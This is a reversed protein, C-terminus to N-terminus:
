YNLNTALLREVSEVTEGKQLAYGAVQDRSIRGVNFYQAQPHAFYYGSVSAAPYMAFNETLHMGSREAGLLDFIVRKGSHDPCAPYGPAPRIGRYGQRLVEETTLNEEAAYGWYEKRVKLHLLEAFAEALRDALIKLMIANYDDHREKFYQVWKEIGLGATVAFLGIFDTKGTGAPVIFDALSLNPVNGEKQEQNRLFPLRLKTDDGLTLEISDGVAVAPFFGFAGNAKVMKDEIMKQLLVQADDYLKRAEGGKVPNEFIDPFKGSINWAHLFYTWDIYRSIEGLPYNELVKVGTFSPKFPKYDKWSAKFRNDRAQELTLYSIGAMADKHKERLRSYKENVSALFDNKMGASLLSAAVGAVRSADRVHVVPYQYQPTIKVATHMESTTAGGILLPVKLGRRQMESAVFAMEDLSPTILGSLGVIDVKERVATEIIKEANVMVGLDIVKYNNCGLVVSVINKGIDHVDGKVTALLIKGASIKGASARENELYSLLVSVAKKMVRASKVVQPLFMKGAEFLDGAAKMGNMLPGEIVGIAHTFLLRAEEVDTAIFTDIGHIIAYSIRDEVPLGRWAEAVSEKRVSTRMQSTYSILRETADPNRNFLVDEIHQLLDAPIDDYVPLNGANVIGMDLGAKIAHFLFASHMAERLADNGRFSFSLNSIGGSVRAYPLNQKIWRTANLFDLAYHNHEEIGTAIALVNPDFIIDEPPIGLEDALIRYARECVAIRREYTAAQGQEDFAMVVMAAGYNRIKLAHEKFIAEGEKLSISNVIAKGQLCKLGAEIVSWKSSDIMVPVKAIEPESMLLNLFRTMEREADLMADDMNVDLAQAGADVQQRAVSLAEDYKEERILRAFKRSGSVNTREGINIFNSKEYVMLPELGSLKLDHNKPPIHRVKAEEAIRCLERIHDPTTGCCGGIINVSGNVLLDSVHKAMKAPTEHYHGFQDPLGANPYASVYCPAKRSLEEIFPNLQEAGLSCNFGVSLLDTHSVSNLFAEATQGSLTRGSADAITGSVMVPLRIGKELFLTNIAFLAAKANLTDFVTEILLLDVGGDILGRVQETYAEALQDYTIARFGPDSVVPSMSASKNTPGISGAVFRQKGPTKEAFGDAENVALRAAAFNIEYVYAELKYDALSISTANFTNTEIIDAGAELYARHIGDIIQPQTLCLLDNCGKLDVSHHSFREGRYDSETLKHRQIMTGMAGDLVLVRHSLESFIDKKGTTM